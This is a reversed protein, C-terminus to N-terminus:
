KNLNSSSIIGIDGASKLSTLHLGSHTGVSDNSFFETSTLMCESFFLLFAQTSEGSPCFSGKLILLTGCM